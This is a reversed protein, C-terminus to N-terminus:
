REVDGDLMTIQCSLDIPVWTSEQFADTILRDIHEIIMNSLRHLDSLLVTFSRSFFIDPRDQSCLLVRGEVFESGWRREEEFRMQLVFHDAELLILSSDTGAMTGGLIGSNM